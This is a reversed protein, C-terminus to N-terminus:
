ENNEEQFFVEVKNGKWRYDFNEGCQPCYVMEDGSYEYVIRGLKRGQRGDRCLHYKDGYNGIAEIVLASGCKPCCLNDKM